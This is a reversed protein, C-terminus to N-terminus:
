TRTLPPWRPGSPEIRLVQGLMRCRAQAQDLMNPPTTWHRQVLADIVSCRQGARRAGPVKSGWGLGNCVPHLESIAVSEAFLAAAGSACPLVALHLESTKVKTGRLTQAYRGIRERLNQQAVGVYAVYRGSGVLRGFVECLDESAFFTLYVGPRDPVARQERLEDLPRRPLETVARLVAARLAADDEWWARGSENSTM